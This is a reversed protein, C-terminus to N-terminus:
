PKLDGLARRKAHANKITKGWAKMRTRREALTEDNFRMERGLKEFRKLRDAALSGDAIAARVTCGPEEGHACDSFRCTEALEVIDSFTSSLGADAGALALERMGPTDIIWGGYPLGHLSRGRTTHRGKADDDRIGGTSETGGTLTNMLTTKGVGSSGILALTEGCGCWIDLAALSAPDLANVAEVLAGGAITRALDVFDYPDGALDAKTLVIVPTAGAERVMALYRELRAPNLDDNCSTVILATDVNAAILQVSHAEGAAKRRFLSKRAIVRIPRELTRDIVVWDGVTPRDEGNLDDTAPYLTIPGSTDLAEYRNRHVATIRAVDDLAEHDFDLDQLYVPSWGLEQLSYITM